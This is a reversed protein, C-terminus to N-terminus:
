RTASWGISPRSRSIATASSSCAGTPSGSRRSRRSFPAAPTEESRTVRAPFRVFDAVLLSARRGGREGLPFIAEGERGILTVRVERQAEDRFEEAIPQWSVLAEVVGIRGEDDVVPLALVAVPGLEPM